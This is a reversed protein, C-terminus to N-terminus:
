LEGMRNAIPVSPSRIYFETAELVESLADALRGALEQADSRGERAATEARAAQEQLKAAMLNGAVGRLGHALNALTTMDGAEAAERLRIGTDAHSERLTTALKLVFDLKGRFRAELGAWDVLQEGSPYAMGAQPGSPKLRSEAERFEAVAHRRQTHQLIVGVLRDLDIPKVVHEVMGAALCRAREEPM